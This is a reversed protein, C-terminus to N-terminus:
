RSGQEGGSELPESKFVCFNKGEDSDGQLFAAALTAAAREVTVVLAGDVAGAVPENRVCHAASLLHGGRSLLRFEVALKVAPADSAPEESRLVLESISTRLRWWEGARASKPSWEGRLGANPVGATSGGQAVGRQVIRRVSAFTFPPTFDFGYSGALDIGIAPSPPEAFSPEELLLPTRALPAAAGRSSHRDPLEKVLARLADRTAQELLSSLLPAHAHSRYERLALPRRFTEGGAEIEIEGQISIVRFFFADYANVSLASFRPHLLLDPTFAGVVDTADRVILPTFGREQLTDVLLEALLSRSDHQLYLYTIPFLGFLFQHGLSPPTFAAGEGSLFPPDAVVMVVPSYDDYAGLLGRVFSSRGQEASGRAGIQRELGLSGGAFYEPLGMSFCGSLSAVLAALVLGRITSGGRSKM